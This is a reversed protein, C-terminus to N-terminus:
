MMVAKIGQDTMQRRILGGEPHLGGWYVLDAGSAKIKSVVASYDKEGTNVGEYLAPKIGDKALAGMTADALGKGYTTKDHLIAIKKGKFNAAIYKAAVDGQQDDRGCTRFVNWKGGETFKPNTSAPTIQLIGNEAYVDSAPISVGSNFHGVVWKVGDGVFRNAVSVGQKPDSADDGVEVTIKQGMVGGKANIDEVAQEVGRQLQAGFAANAGTIPGAVGLKIDAHAAGAFALGAALVFGTLGLHKM